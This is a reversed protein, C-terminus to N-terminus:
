YLHLVNSLFNFHAIAATLQQPQHNTSQLLQLGSDYFINTHSVCIDSKIHSNIKHTNRRRVGGGGLVCVYVGQGGSIKCSSLYCTKMKSLATSYSIM